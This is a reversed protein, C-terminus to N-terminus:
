ETDWRWRRSSPRRLPSRPLQRRAARLEEGLRSILRASWTWARRRLGEGSLLRGTLRAGKRAVNKAFTPRRYAAYAVMTVSLTLALVFISAATSVPGLDGDLLMYILSGSFLMGLAHEPSMKHSPSISTTLVISSVVFGIPLNTHELCDM